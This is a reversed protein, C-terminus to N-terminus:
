LGAWSVWIDPQRLTRKQQTLEIRVNFKYFNYINIYSLFASSRWPLYDM